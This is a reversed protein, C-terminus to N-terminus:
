LGDYRTIELLYIGNKFKNFEKELEKESNITINNIEIEISGTNEIISEGLKHASLMWAEALPSKDSKINYKERLNEGGWLYDTTHPKLKLIAM